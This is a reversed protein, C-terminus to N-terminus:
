TKGLEKLLSSTYKTRRGVMLAARNYIGSSPQEGLSQSLVSSPQLVERLKESSIFNIVGNALTQLDPQDSMRGIDGFSEDGRGRDALGCSSLFARQQDSHKIAYALWDLNIEPWPDESYIRLCNTSWDPKLQYTFIPKVLVYETTSWVQFPYGLILVGEEGLRSANNIFDQLHSGLPINLDWRRGVKPYWNGFQRLFIFRKNYDTLYGLAECGGDNKICDIYYNLLKRFTGWPGSFKIPKPEVKPTVKPPLNRNLIESNGPTWPTEESSTPVTLPTIRNTPLTDIPPTTKTNTAILNWRGRELRVMEESQLMRLVRTVEYEALKLSKARLRTRLEASTLAVPTNKLLNLITEKNKTNDKM